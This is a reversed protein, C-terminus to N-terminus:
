NFDKFDKLRFVKIQLAKLRILNSDWLKKIQKTKILPRDSYLAMTLSWTAAM